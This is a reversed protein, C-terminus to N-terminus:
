ESELQAKIANAVDAVQESGSHLADSLNSDTTRYHENYMSRSVAELLAVLQEPQRRWINISEVIDKTEIMAPIPTCVRTLEKMLDTNM